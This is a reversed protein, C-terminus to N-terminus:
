QSAIRASLDLKENENEFDRELGKLLKICKDGFFERAETICKNGTYFSFGSPVHLLLCYYRINKTCICKGNCGPALEYYDLPLWDGPKVAASYGNFKLIANVVEIFILKKTPSNAGSIRKFAKKDPMYVIYQQYESPIFM